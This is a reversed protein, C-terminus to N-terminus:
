NKRTAGDAITADNLVGCTDYTALSLFIYGDVGWSPTWSNRVHYYPSGSAPAQDYGVVQVCHDLQNMYSDCEWSTMVGSQYHQWNAADLCVSVPTKALSNLMKSQSWFTTAYNFGSIDVVVKSKDFQCTQDVAHYPYTTNSEQGGAGIIYNYADETHGGGCGADASSCDVIQQPALAITRNTAKGALITASEIAETASFAWCSGCQGQNKVPTVAGRAIWDISSPVGDLPLAVDADHDIGAELRAARMEKKTPRAKADTMLYQARFEEDLLDSLHNIGYRASSGKAIARKNLEDMKALNTKFVGFRHEHEVSTEYSKGHAVKFQEFAARQQTEDYPNEPMSVPRALASCVVILLIAVSAFM